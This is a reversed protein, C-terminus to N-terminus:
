WLLRALYMPTYPKNYNINNKFRSHFNTRRQSDGHDLYDQMGKAGFHILKGDPTVLMFKKDNRSSLKIEGKIKKSKALSKVIDLKTM